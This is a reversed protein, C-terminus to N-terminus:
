RRVETLQEGGTPRSELWAHVDSLKYRIGGLKRYRPGRKMLRWNCLTKPKVGLLIGVERTNMLRVQERQNDPLSKESKM